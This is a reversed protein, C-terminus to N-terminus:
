TTIKHIDELIVVRRAIFRPYLIYTLENVLHLRQKSLCQCHCRRTWCSGDKNASVHAIADDQGVYATKTQLSMPLSMTKDLMHLRQKCLCPCHCRRTWCICDKNASVHAIVDDQGVYATKTQLSMPLSMTKDLMHLRQKCLCPCHCRRTWCICDKNASVHAIVDDQGVYATKTQLYMPLSMTKDLMHLRQKCLCLCHCRRTWCICDKNASVHAIVDDQGVYATKTQLSMPLSMTKDLMHLRQKCLCLCHCRRTWCIADKSAHVHAIADDQGVSATKARLSMLLPMTKDLLHRRQECLCPCHCRRTWCIGDKSASVHDIADDQGVSATKARLFVPLPM